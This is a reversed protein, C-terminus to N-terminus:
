IGALGELHLQGRRPVQISLILLFVRTASKTESDKIPRGSIEVAALIADGRFMNAKLGQGFGLM